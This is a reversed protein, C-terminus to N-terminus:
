PLSPALSVHEPLPILGTLDIEWTELPKWGDTASTPEREKGKGKATASVGWGTGVRGWLEVKMKQLSLDTWDVIGPTSLDDLAFAPNISPRHIPSIFNPVSPYRLPGESTSATPFSYSSSM